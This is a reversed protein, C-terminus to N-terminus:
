KMEKLEKIQNDIFGILEIGDFAQVSGKVKELKEICFSIKDQNPNYQICQSGLINLIQEKPTQLQSFLIRNNLQKIEAGKEALQQKLQENEELLNNIIEMQSRIEGICFQKRDEYKKESEVLKAELDSIKDKLEKLLKSM